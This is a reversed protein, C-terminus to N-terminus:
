RSRRGRTRKTLLDRFREGTRESLGAGGSDAIGIIHAIRNYASLRGARAEAEAADRALADIAARILQSKTRGQRKALRRILGETRPDLRVSTPM